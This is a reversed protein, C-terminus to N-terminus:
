ENRTNAGITNPFLNNIRSCLDKDDFTHLLEKAFDYKIELKGQSYCDLLYNIQGVTSYCLRLRLVPSNNMMTFPTIKIYSLILDTYEFSDNWCLRIFDACNMTDNFKNNELFYKLTYFNNNKIMLYWRFEYVSYSRVSLRKSFYILPELGRSDVADHLVAYLLNCTTEDDMLEPAHTGAFGSGCGARRDETPSRFSAPIDRSHNVLLKWIGPHKSQCLFRDLMTLWEFPENLKLYLELLENIDSNLDVIQFFLHKSEVIITKEEIMTNLVIVLNKPTFQLIPLTGTADNIKFTKCRPDTPKYKAYESFKEIYKIYNVFQHIPIHLEILQEKIETSM